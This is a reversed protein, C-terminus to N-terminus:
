ATVCHGDKHTRNELAAGEGLLAYVKKAREALAKCAKTNTLVEDNLATVLLTPNPAIMAVIQDWEFTAASKKRQNELKQM